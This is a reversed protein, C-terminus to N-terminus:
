QVCGRRSFRARLGTSQVAQGFSHLNDAIASRLEKVTCKQDSWNYEPDNRKLWDFCEPKTLKSYLKETM